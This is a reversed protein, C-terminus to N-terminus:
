KRFKDLLGSFTRWAVNPNMAERWRDPYNTCILLNPDLTATNRIAKKDNITWAMTEIRAEQLEEIRAKNLRSYGISLFDSEIEALERTLTNRWGDLILGTRIGKSLKRIRGLTGMHFSTLVVDKTAGYAYIRELVKEEIMPYRIGDTKLEINLKCRGGYEKLVTDLTPIAEGQYKQSFWNGADLSALEAATWKRVEGRGNTTRRLTYDHIVVPVGDKSLQVDIEIWDIDPAEFALRIASMTNEPARSSWGRHAVCPNRM